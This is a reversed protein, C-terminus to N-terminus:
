EKTIEDNLHWFEPLSAIEFITEIDYFKTKNISIDTKYVRGVETGKYANHNSDKHM